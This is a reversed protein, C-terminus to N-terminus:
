RESSSRERLKGTTDQLALERKSCVGANRQPMAQPRSDDSDIWNYRGAPQGNMWLKRGRVLQM